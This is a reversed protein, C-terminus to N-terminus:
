RAPELQRSAGRTALSGRLRMSLDKWVLIGLLWWLAIWLPVGGLWGLDYRHLHGLRIYLVEVGPGVLAMVGLLAADHRDIGFLWAYALLAGLFPLWSLWPDGHLRYVLQRTLLVLLLELGVKLGPSRVPGGPLRVADRRVVPGLGEFSALTAMARLILGWYLLMWIPVGGEGSLPPVTYDYVGHRVVTNYDNAAGLLTAIAVLVSERALEAGGGHRRAWLLMRVGLVAVVVGTMLAPRGSALVIAASVVAVSGADLSLDGRAAPPAGGPPEPV